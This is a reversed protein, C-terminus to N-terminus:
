IAEGNLSFVEEGETGATLDTLAWFYSEKGKKEKGAQKKEVLTTSM